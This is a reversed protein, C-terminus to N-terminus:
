KNVKIYKITYGLNSFKEEYETKVNEINESHLNISMEEIKYGYNNFEKVSFCFLNDNDTKMIIENEGKFVEDYVKLFNKHTLRRKEHRKKPWPDSFNLYITSIEKDFIQDLKSADACIFLVNSLNEQDAKEIARLIISESRELGIFNINPNNKAMEIIFQGKGCGIELNIRNNDNKFLSIFNGKQKEPEKIFYPSNNIKEKANKVNRLRM